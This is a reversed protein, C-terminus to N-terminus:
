KSNLEVRIELNQTTPLSKCNGQACKQAMAVEAADIIPDIEATDTWQQQRTRPKAFKEAPVEINEVKGDKKWIFM